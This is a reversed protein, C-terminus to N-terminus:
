PAPALEVIFRDGILDFLPDCTAPTFEPSRALCIVDFPESATFQPWGMHRFPVPPDLRAPVPKELGRLQDIQGRTLGALQIHPADWRYSEMFYSMIDGPNWGDPNDRNYVYDLGSLWRCGIAFALFNGDTLHKGPDRRDEPARFMLDTLLHMYGADGMGLDAHADVHTVHFPAHLVGADIADRWRTFLDGHHEVIFGPLPVTLGCRSRLFDLTEAMSWAPYEDPDLRGHTRDRDHAVGYIFFDLDIDLM